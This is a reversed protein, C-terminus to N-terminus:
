NLLSTQGVKISDASSEQGPNLSDLKERVEDLIGDADVPYNDKLGQLTARAMVTDGKKLSIDALLLFVRAMWYQHPTNQGIFENIVKEADAPQGKMNLIEAVRYKSEAGEVSTVESSVKRFDRLAEDYRNLSYLAKANMFTAEITLEEPMGASGIIKGSVTITKEADGAEYASRLQGLLAGTIMDTGVSIRELQEYYALSKM